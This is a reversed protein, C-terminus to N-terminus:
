TPHIVQQLNSKKGRRQYLGLGSGAVEKVGRGGQVGAEALCNRFRIERLFRLFVSPIKM